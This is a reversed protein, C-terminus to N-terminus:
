PQKQLVITGNTAGLITPSTPTVLTFNGDVCYSYDLTELDAAFSTGSVTLTNNASTYTGSTAANFALIYGMGGSQTFTGTCTCGGTTTLSDVCDVTDFGGSALPIGIKDCATVTGSVDLCAPALEIDVAGSTACHGNSPQFSLRLELCEMGGHLDRARLLPVHLGLSGLFRPLKQRRPLAMAAADAVTQM